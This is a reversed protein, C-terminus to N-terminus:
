RAKVPRAAGKAQRWVPRTLCTPGGEVRFSPPEGPLAVVEWGAEEFFGQTGPSGAPMVVRRPVVRLSSPAQVHTLEEGSVEVLRVGRRRETGMSLLLTGGDTVLAPDVVFVGDAHGLLPEGQYLVEVEWACLADALVDHASRAEQLDIALTYHRRAHDAAAV